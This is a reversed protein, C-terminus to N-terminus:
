RRARMTSVSRDKVSDVVETPVSTNPVEPPTPRTIMALPYPDYPWQERSPTEPVYDELFWRRFLEPTHGIGLEALWDAYRDVHARMVLGDSIPLYLYYPSFVDYASELSGGPRLLEIIAAVLGTREAGWQCHILLPRECTEVVDVLMRAQARSLWLDSAMAIDVLIADGDLSAAREARYWPQDPNSGRLNLVTKIRHRSIARKLGGGTLQGARYVEGSVLTGQNGGAWRVGLIGLPVLCAALTLRVFLRRYRTRREPM